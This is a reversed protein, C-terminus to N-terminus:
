VRTRVAIPPLRWPPPAVRRLVAVIVALAVAGGIGFRRAIARMAADEGRARLVPTVAVVLALQGGVFLLIGLLHLFRVLEWGTM